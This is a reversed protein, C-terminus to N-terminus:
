GLEYFLDNMMKPYKIWRFDYIKIDRVHTFESWILQSGKTWQLPKIRKDVALKEQETALRLEGIEVYLRVGPYDKFNGQILSSLWFWKGSNVAQICAKSNHKLNESLKETFTDFFFATQDDNLFITGIPTITPQGFSDVTAISSYLSAKQAAGFVQRINKWDKESIM